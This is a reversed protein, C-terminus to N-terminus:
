NKTREYLINIKIESSNIYQFKPFIKIIKEIKQSAKQRKNIKRNELFYKKIKKVIKSFM